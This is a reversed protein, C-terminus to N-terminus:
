VRKLAVLLNYLVTAAEARTSLKDPLFLGQSDGHIIGADYVQAVADKAWGAIDAADKFAAELQQVDATANDQQKARAIAKALTVAMQQKTVLANPQFTGNEFGQVLGAEAAAGIAGAYWQSPLVDAFAAKEPKETLDLARVLMATWEARTVARNPAFTDKGTGQVIFRSALAEISGRAWHKTVDNFSVSSQVVGYVSNHNNTMVAHMSGDETSPGFVTSVFQLKGSADVSVGVANSTDAGAHLPLVRSVTYIGFDNIEQESVGGTVLSVNFAVLDSLLASGRSTLSAVAAAKKDGTVKAIEIRVEAQSDLNGWVSEISGIPLEYSIGNWNVSITRTGGNQVANGLAAVPFSVTVSDLKEASAPLQAVIRNTNSREAAEQVLKAPIHFLAAGENSAGEAEATLGHITSTGGKHEVTPEASTGSGGSSPPIVVPPTYQDATVTVTASATFEGDETTATITATGASVATVNGDNSVTAVAPASSSWAVNKNSADSPNIVATLKDTPNSTMHLALSSKDLTVGTVQTPYRYIEFDDIATWNGAKADSFVGIELQGNTVVVNDISFPTYTGGSASRLDKTLQNGGYNKVELQLTNQGGGTRVWVQVKYVGNPLDFKRYTSQQYASGNWHTLKYQGSRPTDQDVFNAIGQTDPHWESWGEFSGKEFDMNDLPVLVGAAQPVATVATSRASENGAQDVATVEFSYVAGARLPVATYWTNTVPDVSAIKVGNRYVNYQLFDSELNTDWTLKAQEIGAAATLGTPVAPAETDSVAATRASVRDSAASEGTESFAAVRYYYTTDGRLGRDIYQVAGAPAMGVDQYDAYISDAGSASDLVSRYIKYGAAGPVDNWQLGVNLQDVSPVATVGTPTALANTGRTSASAKTTVRVLSFDDFAAWEGGAITSHVGIDVQGNTVKIAPIVLQTWQGVYDATGAGVALAAGGYNGAELQVDSHSGKQYWVSARYTGNPVQVTRFTSQEYDTGLYHVLKYTGSRPSGNDVKHASDQGNPVTEQWGELTGKEFGGYMALYDFSDQINDFSFQFWNLNVSGTFVAYLTHAGSVSQVAASKTTWADPGGTSSLHVSGVSQGTPSDLRFDIVADQSAAARVKVSTTGNMFSVNDFAIYGGASGTTVKQGGGKDSAVALQVGNMATYDEAEIKSYPTVFSANDQTGNWVFTAVAGASLTYTFSQTGWRVKFLQSQKSSNLAILVKSDDPNRFAASEISGAGFTNSKIRVAGPLVFQSAHGFAYYEENLKYSGTQSDITVFGRCDMCGGNTPGHNEDLAINWKLSTKAWNRTAGIILNQVDWAVNDGFVNAFEGGSSETFYIDKDPHQDHVFAQSDVSGAYGHFASGAIYPKAEADNLVDIPYNPEDWNHDWVIIKTTIGAAQFAPGLVKVFAAQDAPEMRMGPYGGPEFHPENQLTIADIAIGEAEYAQIFKVFYQAYVAYYEPKLKGKILSENTKMWAPASWPTAMIKLDPNIALAQKITPIIYAQDHAISFHDLNEDTTGPAIDDYTYNNLAFDTSGMPLRMYSIGIGGTRGFMKNMLENRSAEDLKNQILWTSSDTFAAGFGEISQYTTHEDVEITPNVAAGDAAFTIGSEASLLKSKNGETVWAQVAEAAASAKTVYLGGYGSLMLSLMLIFVIPKSIRSYRM